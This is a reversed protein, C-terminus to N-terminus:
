GGCRGKLENLKEQVEQACNEAYVGDERGRLLEAARTYLRLAQEWEGDHELICAAYLVSDGDTPDISLDSPKPPGCAYQIAMRFVEFLVHHIM